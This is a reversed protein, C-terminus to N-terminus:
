RPNILAYTTEHGALLFLFANGIIEDDSLASEKSGKWINTSHAILNSLINEGGDSNHAPGSKGVDILDQLYLGVEDYAQKINKLHTIPLAFLLRPVAVLAIINDLTAHISDHFSMQHGAAIDGSSEWELPYGYGAAMMVHLAIKMTEHHPREDISQFQPVYQEVVVKGEYMSRGWCAM